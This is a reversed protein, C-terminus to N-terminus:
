YSSKELRVKGRFIRYVWAGYAFVLPLGLAVILLLIQLTKESSAANYITLSNQDPNITSQVIVPYTGLGFLIVLLAISISSFIFAWGSNNKKVQYVISFIAALALLPFLFLYPRELMREVMHPMYKLTGITSVFYFFIFVGIAKNIWKRVIEHAQGDTKMALYIAGHMAFLACSTFGIMVPYPGLLDTFDGIYDQRHDLPIGEVMNGLILGLVFAVLISAFSFVIDWLKRWFISENKSRFEIAVARFILAAILFMLLTYFGSFVTAYANPFGAFVGGMVIVIWVENGDWVPGISNLFIRRQEDTKAFLHLAGVGLDFGDLITYSIMAAGIVFYWLSQVDIM